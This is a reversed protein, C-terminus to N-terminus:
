ATESTLYGSFAAQMIADRSWNERLFEAVLNGASMVVIRDCTELLEELDSSVIVIAKSAEALSEMLHYVRQRAAVDIGRTPEDFFFVNADQMLWKSVAVKQQNGGSLTGVSQEISACRIELQEVTQKAATQERAKCIWGFRSLRRRLSHPRVVDRDTMAQGAPAEMMCSGGCRESQGHVVLSANVRIAQPLLLGNQKRDETVMAIGARVADAPHRFQCPQTQDRLYVEGSTCPDAGFIARLLETRGSGVLGAIGLREGDHVSFSVKKVVNDRILDVVRLATRETAYSRFNSLHSVSDDGSMLEVMEPTSLTSTHRTCVVKGDRLFTVRDALRSVEQLRHSIYIVAVGRDRLKHLHEFLRDTERGSLAATPEDLILLRCQQDLAAAIEVMQQHGVGLSDVKAHTDIDSLGLRDLAVRAQHHLSRRNIFGYRIPMRTLLLNEAVSLSGILNLEQQVIQIGRTEAAQKDRPVYELGDFQMAGGSAATLGSIIKCLTSKGAGNAGLLAHIEGAAIGLHVDDLVTVAGYRKILRDVVLLPPPPDM